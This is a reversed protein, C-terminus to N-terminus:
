FSHFYLSVKNWERCLLDYRDIMFCIMGCDYMRLGWEECEDIQLLCIKDPFENEVEDYYPKGLLKFSDHRVQALSFNVAKAPLYAPTGDSYNIPWPELNDCNDAYLVRFRDDNWLGIGNHSDSSECFESLFEDMEAFFYLMGKKPLLYQIDHVAIDECRIQCVFMLPQGDERCPYGMGEPLDAAGWWKSKGTLDEDTDSFSMRISRAPREISITADSYAYSLGKKPTYGNKDPRVDLTVGEAQVVLRDDCIQRVRVVPLHENYDCLNMGVKLQDKRYVKPDHSLNQHGPDCAVIYGSVRCTEWDPIELEKNTMAKQNLLM